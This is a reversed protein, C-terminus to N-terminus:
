QPEEIADSHFSMKKSGKNKLTFNYKHNLRFTYCFVEKEFAAYNLLGQEQKIHSFLWIGVCFLLVCDSLHSPCTM